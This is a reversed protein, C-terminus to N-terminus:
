GPVFAIMNQDGAKEQGPDGYYLQVQRTSTNYYRSWLLRGTINYETKENHYVATIKNTQNDLIISSNAPINLTVMMFSGPDSTKALSIMGNVLVTVSQVFHRRDNFENFANIEYFALVLVVAMLFISLMLRVPTGEIGRRM